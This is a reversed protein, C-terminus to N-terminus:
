AIGLLLLHTKFEAPFTDFPLREWEKDFGKYVFRGYRLHPETCEYRPDVCYHVLLETPVEQASRIYLRIVEEEKWFYCAYKELIM